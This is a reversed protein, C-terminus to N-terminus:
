SSAGQRLLCKSLNICKECLILFGKRYTFILYLYKRLSVHFSFDSGESPNNRQLKGRLKASADVKQKGEDVIFDM